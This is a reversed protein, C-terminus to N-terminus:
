PCNENRGPGGYYFYRGWDGNNGTQVDYCNSKETFTGIGKPAKLNNSSDVVQINRFYSAKGFGEEPFRGSGMQTSTHRGDPESNVVEGGWEIMSASDALYSFLFSPWYGLVYDNGFQMWWHGEKPDKWVLISIDYQSNRFGSVPSISAGMAIESNIQIFGSCLLNYCGTAQYADSTWYTFLRTNNDGYLDPSVQWGAEISNLDQGFSGGLIWLQSLSFENPQQIKPEWVNITAKAGYYKDGEVYAIAHQHGSENILDPDASRPQPIARHKKRGYRKVSSARLVDDEKTRRIPVTGEPCKDNVHWLQTVPNKREKSETSAKSDDFVRGEPHYSPRMQIKHDKLYPHDFAPQHSMHVCDIIDGDPSEISKVAPKNLRNLHKQVELKQRSVSLRAACSLSILGLLCFLLVLVRSRSFHAGGGYGCSGM